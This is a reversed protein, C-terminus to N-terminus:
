LRERRHRIDRKQRHDAAHVRGPARDLEQPQRHGLDDRAAEIHEQLEVVYVCGRELVAGEALSFPDSDLESLQQEVTKHRGPLFSAPVRHIKSGLKLDFSAPQFQSPEMEAARLIGRHVLTRIEQRPLIGAAADLRLAEARPGALDARRGSLHSAGDPM